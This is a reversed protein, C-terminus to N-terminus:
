SASPVCCAIATRRTVAGAACAPWARSAPRPWSQAMNLERVYYDTLAQKGAQCRGALMECQARIGILTGELKPDLAKLRDLEELCGKGDDHMLKRNAAQVLVAVEGLPVAPAVPVPGPVTPRPEPEAVFQPRAPAGSSAPEPTRSGQQCAACLLAAVCALRLRRVEEQV